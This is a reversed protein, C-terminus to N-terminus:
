PLNTERRREPHIRGGAPRQFSKTINFFEEDGFIVKWDAHLGLDRLIPIESRLLESVGGGYPTANLHLIRAGNLERALKMIEEVKEETVLSRYNDLSEIGVDVTQLM